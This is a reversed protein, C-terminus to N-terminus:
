AYGHQQPYIHLVYLMINYWVGGLNRGGLNLASITCWHYNIRLSSTYSYMYTYLTAIEQTNRTVRLYM